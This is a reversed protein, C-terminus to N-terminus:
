LLFLVTMTAGVNETKKKSHNVGNVREMTYGKKVCKVRKGSEGNGSNSKKPFLITLLALALVLLDFLLQKVPGYFNEISHGKLLAHVNTMIM